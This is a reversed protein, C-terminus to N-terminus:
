HVNKEFANNQNIVNKIKVVCSLKRKYKNWFQNM